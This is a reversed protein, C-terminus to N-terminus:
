YLVELFGRLPEPFQMAVTDLHRDRLLIFAVVIFSITTNSSPATFILSGLLVMSIVIGLMVWHLWMAQFYNAFPWHNEKTM